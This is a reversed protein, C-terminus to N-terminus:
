YHVWKLINIIAASCILVVWLMTKLQKQMHQLEDIKTEKIGTM